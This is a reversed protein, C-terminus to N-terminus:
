LGRRRQHQTLAADPRPVPAAAARALVGGKDHKCTNILAQLCLSPTSRGLSSFLVPATLFLRGERLVVLRFVVDISLKVAAVPLCYEKCRCIHPAPLSTMAWMGSRPEQSSRFSPPAQLSASNPSRLSEFVEPLNHISRGRM